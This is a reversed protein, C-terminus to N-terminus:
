SMSGTVSSLYDACCQTFDGSTLALPSWKDTMKIKHLFSCLRLNEWLWIILPGVSHTLISFCIRSFGIQGNPPWHYSKKSCVIMNSTPAFILHSSISLYTYQLFSHLSKLFKTSKKCHASNFSYKQTQIDHSLNSWTLCFIVLNLVFFPSIWSFSYKKLSSLLSYLYHQSLNLFFFHFQRPLSPQFNRFGLSNLNSNVWM